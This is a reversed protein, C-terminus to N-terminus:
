ENDTSRDITAATVATTTVRQNGGDGTKSARGATEAVVAEAHSIRRQAILICRQIRSVERRHIAAAAWSSPRRRRQVKLLRARLVRVRVTLRRARVAARFAMLPRAFPVDLPQPALGRARDPLGLMPALAAPVPLRSVMYHARSPLAALPLECLHGQTLAEVMASDLPPTYAPVTGAVRRPPVWVRSFGLHQNLLFLGRTYVWRPQAGGDIAGDSGLDILIVRGAAVADPLRWYITSLVLPACTDCPCVPVLYLVEDLVAQMQATSVPVLHWRAIGQSQAPPRPPLRALDSPRVRIQQLTPLRYDALPRLAPAPPPVPLPPLKPRAPSPPLAGERAM